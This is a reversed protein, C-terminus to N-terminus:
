VLDLMVFHHLFFQFVALEPLYSAPLSPTGHLVEPCDLNPEMQYLLKNSFPATQNPLQSLKGIPRISVTPRRFFVALGTMPTLLDDTASWICDSFRLYRSKLNIAFCNTLLLNVAVPPLKVTNHM